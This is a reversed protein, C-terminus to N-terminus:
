QGYSIIKVKKGEQKEYILNNKKYKKSEIKKQGSGEKQALEV